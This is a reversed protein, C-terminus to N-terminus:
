EDDEPESKVLGHKLALMKLGRGYEGYSGEEERVPMEGALYKDMELFAEGLSNLTLAFRFHAVEGQEIAYPRITALSERWKLFGDEDVFLYEQDESDWMGEAECYQDWEVDRYTDDDIEFDAWPFLHPFVFAWPMNPFMVFPWDQATRTEGHEDEVLIRMSGRSMSKNVWEEAELLIRSGDEIYQMLPKALQLQTLRQQYQGGKALQALARRSARVLRQSSPVAMRWADKTRKIKGVEVSQWYCERTNTDCLVVLVPLSHGTWYDLHENSGRYIFSDSRRESLYSSGSKIQVGILRGTPAGNEVIELHADIGFDSIPQERFIWGLEREVALLVTAVGIREVASSRPRRQRTKKHPPRKPM